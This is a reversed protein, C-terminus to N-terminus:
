IECDRLLIHFGVVYRYVLIEGLYILEGFPFVYYVVTYSLVIVIKWLFCKIWTIEIDIKIVKVAQDLVLNALGYKNLALFAM